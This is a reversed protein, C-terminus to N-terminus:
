AIRRQQTPSPRWQRLTGNMLRTMYTKSVGYSAAVHARLAGSQVLAVMLDVQEDTLKQRTPRPVSLRGKRSADRMNDTHTGLFLHNLNVCLKNDCSHLIHQDALIEGRMLEWAARHAGVPRTRTYRAAWAFQGYGNPTRSGQWEWCAADSELVRVKAWFRCRDENTGLSFDGAQREALRLLTENSVNHYGSGM